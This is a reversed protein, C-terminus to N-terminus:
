AGRRATRLRYWSQPKGARVERPSKRIDSHKIQTHPHASERIRSGCARPCEACQLGGCVRFGNISRVIRTHPYWGCAGACQVKRALTRTARGGLPACGCARPTGAGASSSCVM